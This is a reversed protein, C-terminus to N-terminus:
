LYGLDELRDAVVADDTASQTEVPSDATVDRRPGDVVLWPVRVLQETYIGHPHGWEVVPVPSARENVMNGHDATVVTKGDIADILSEVAPLARDLTARYARWVEEEPISLAGTRLQYWFGAQDAEFYGQSDEFVGDESLFPYHPQIYHAVIRKNPYTEAAELVRETMTEPPVTDLSPDWDDGQWVEVTAHLDPRVDERHRYLQPNATVYVTDHLMRHGFNARLFETTHSGQSQRSELHGPLTSQEAFMDYRCADLVVLTDWSEEFVDVGDTNYSRTYLRRHYLRNLERGFLGPTQLGRLLQSLSYM